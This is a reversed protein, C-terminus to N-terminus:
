PGALQIRFESSKVTENPQSASDYPIQASNNNIPGEISTTPKATTLVATTM